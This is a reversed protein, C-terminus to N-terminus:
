ANGGRAAVYFSVWEPTDKLRVGKEDRWTGHSLGGIGDVISILADAAGLAKTDPMAAIAARAEARRQDNIAPKGDCRRNAIVDAIAWAVKEVREKQEDPTM